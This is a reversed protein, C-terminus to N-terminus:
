FEGGFFEHVDDAHFVAQGNSLRYCRLKHGGIELVGEHTAVPIGDDDTTAGTAKWEVTELVMEIATTM